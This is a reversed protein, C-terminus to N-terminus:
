GLREELQAVAKKDILVWEAKLLDHINLDKALTIMVGKINRVTRVFEPQSDPTIVLVKGQVGNTKLYQVGAKTKAGDVAFSEVIKVHDDRKLESLVVRLALQRVKVPLAYGYDRPKPPFIVGGHRWLPSRTSGARARGTGKQKWPKKGGGSVEARTKAAHTGRRRSALYWRLTEQVVPQNMKESFINEM